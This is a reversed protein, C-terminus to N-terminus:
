ENHKNADCMAEFYARGVEEQRLWEVKDCWPFSDCTECMDRVLYTDDQWSLKRRNHCTYIVRECDPCLYVRHRGEEDWISWQCVESTRPLLRGCGGCYHVSNTKTLKHGFPSTHITRPM